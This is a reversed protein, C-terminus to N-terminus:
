KQFIERTKDTICREFFTNKIKRLADFREELDVEEVLTNTEQFVDIDLIYPLVNNKVSAMTQTLIVTANEEELPIQMQLFYNSLIQPLSLPAVAVVNFYDKFDIEDEYFPIDIRNIFRTALRTIKHPNARERYLNWLILADGFHKEWKLYPKLVNLTFGDLRFQVQTKEDESSFVIGLPSSHAEQSVSGGEKLGFKGTFSHKKKIKPFDTPVQNKLSELNELSPNGLKDIQIDFIAEQIPANTYTM